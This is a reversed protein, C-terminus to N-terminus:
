HRVRSSPALKLEPSDLPTPTSMGEQLSGYIPFWPSEMTKWPNEMTKWPNEMTTWPNEMTNWPNEMSKWPKGCRKTHQGMQTLGKDAPITM